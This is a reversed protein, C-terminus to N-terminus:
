DQAVAVVTGEAVEALPKLEIEENDLKRIKEGAVKLVERWTEVPFSVFYDLKRIELVPEGANTYVLTARTSEREIRDQEERDLQEQLRAIAQDAEARAKKAAELREAATPVHPVAAVFRRTVSAGGVDNRFGMLKNLHLYAVDSQITGKPVNLRSAIADYTLETNSYLDIVHKRRAETSSNTSGKPRGRRAPEDTVPILPAPKNVADWDIPSSYPRNTAIRSPAVEITKLHWMGCSKGHPLDTVCEYPEQKACNREMRVKYEYETALEYTEFRKKGPYAHCGELRTPTITAM